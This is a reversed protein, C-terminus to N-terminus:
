GTRHAGARRRFPQQVPVLHGEGRARSGAAEPQPSPDDAGGPRRGWGPRGEVVGMAKRRLDAHQQLETEYQDEVRRDLEEIVLPDTTFSRSATTRDREVEGAIQTIDLDQVRLAIAQIQVPSPTRVTKRENPTM